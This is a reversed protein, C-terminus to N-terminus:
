SSGASASRSDAATPLRGRLLPIGMADFYRGGAVSVWSFKKDDAGWDPRGEIEFQGAQGFQSMPLYNVTGTALVDPM